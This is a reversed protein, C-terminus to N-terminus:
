SANRRPESSRRKRHSRLVCPKARAVDSIVDVRPARSIQGQTEGRAARRELRNPADELVVGIRVSGKAARNLADVRALPRECLPQGVPRDLADPSEVVPDLLEAATRDGLEVRRHARRQPQAGILERVRLDGDMRGHVLRDLEDPVGPDLAGDLKRIRHHPPQRESQALEDLGQRFLRRHLCGQAV